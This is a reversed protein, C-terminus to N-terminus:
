YYILTINAEEMDVGNEIEFYALKLSVLYEFKVEWFLLNKCIVYIGFWIFPILLQLNGLWLTMHITTEM